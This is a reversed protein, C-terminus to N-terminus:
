ATLDPRSRILTLAPAKASEPQGLRALAPVAISGAIGVAPLLGLFVWRWGLLHAVEASLAPGALGPAVWATSIVAIMRARLPPPLSRGISAYAVSPIVGAGLGQLMRGVVLVGMSPALGAGALGLGFLVLGATFPLAPGRRDYERGGAVVGVVSSLMFGGSAWGYLSLGGLDRAVVPMVTIVALSESAVVTITLILGITLARIDPAWLQRLRGQSM